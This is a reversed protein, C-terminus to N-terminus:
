MEMRITTMYAGYEPLNALRSHVTSGAYKAVNSGGHGDFVGFFAHGDTGDENNTVTSGQPQEPISADTKSPEPMGPPLYAHVTHSDEM